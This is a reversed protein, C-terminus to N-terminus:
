RRLPPALVTMTTAATRGGSRVEASERLREWNRRGELKSASAPRVHGRLRRRGDRSVRPDGVQAVRHAPGVLRTTHHEPRMNM